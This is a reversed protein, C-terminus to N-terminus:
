SSPHYRQREPAARGLPWPAAARGHQRRAARGTRLPTSPSPRDLASYNRTSTRPEERGVSTTLGPPAVGGSDCDARREQAAREIAALKDLEEETVDYKACMDKIMAATSRLLASREQDHPFQGGHVRSTGPDPVAAELEKDHTLDNVPQEHMHSHVDSDQVEAAAPPKGQAPCPVDTQCRRSARRVSAAQIGISRTWTPAGQEEVRDAPVDSFESNLPSLPDPMDHQTHTQATDATATQAQPRCVEDGHKADNVARNLQRLAGIASALATAPRGGVLAAHTRLGAEIVAVKQGVEDLVGPGQLPGSVSHEHSERCAAAVMAAGVHRTAGGVSAGFAAAFVRAVVERESQILLGSIHKIWDNGGEADGCSPV